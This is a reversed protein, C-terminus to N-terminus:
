QNREENKVTTAAVNMLRRCADAVDDDAFPLNAANEFHQKRKGSYAWLCIGIFAIMVALTALGRVVNIDM